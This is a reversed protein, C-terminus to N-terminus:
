AFFGGSIRAPNTYHRFFADSAYLYPAHLLNKRFNTAEKTLKIAKFFFSFPFMRLLTPANMSSSPDFDRDIFLDFSNGPLSGCQSRYV